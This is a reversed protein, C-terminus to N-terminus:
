PLSRRKKRERESFEYIVWFILGGPIVLSIMLKAFTSRRIKVLTKKM